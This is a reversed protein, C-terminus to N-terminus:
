FGLERTEVSSHPDIKIPCEKVIDVARALSGTEIFACSAM